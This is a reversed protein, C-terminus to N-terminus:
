SAVVRDIGASSDLAAETTIGGCGFGQEDVHSVCASLEKFLVSPDVVLSRWLFPITEPFGSIEVGTCDVVAGAVSERSSGM